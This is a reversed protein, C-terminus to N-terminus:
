AEAPIVDPSQGLEFRSQETGTTLVPQARRAARDRADHGRLHGTFAAGGAQHRIIAWLWPRLSQIPFWEHAKARAANDAELFPPGALLELEGTLIM